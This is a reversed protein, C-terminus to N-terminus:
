ITVVFLPLIIFFLVVKAINKIDNQKNEVDLKVCISPVALAKLRPILLLVLFLLVAWLMQESNLLHPWFLTSSFTAISLWLALRM